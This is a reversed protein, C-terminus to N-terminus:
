WYAMHIYLCGGFKWISLVIEKSNHPSL